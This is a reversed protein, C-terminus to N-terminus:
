CVKNCFETVDLSM